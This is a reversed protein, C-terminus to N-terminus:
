DKPRFFKGTHLEPHEGDLWHELLEEFSYDESHFEGEYLSVMQFDDECDIISFQLCGWDIIPLWGDEWEEELQLVEWTKFLDGWSSEYGGPLGIIPGPGFGGNSIERYARGLIKPLAFGLVKEAFAPGVADVVPFWVTKGNTLAARRLRAFLSPM